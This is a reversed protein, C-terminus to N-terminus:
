NKRAKEKNANIEDKISYITKGNEFIYGDNEHTEVSFNMEGSSSVTLTVTGQLDTRYIESNVAILNNITPDAPLGYQKEPSSHTNGAGCSIVAYEPKVLKLFDLASSTISGHHGVKLVDCDVYESNYNSYYEYFKYEAGTNEKKDDTNEADGTLLIKRGAYEIMIIPSFNNATKFSSFGSLDTAYPMVFDVTYTYTEEGYKVDCSFDSNDSFFEWSDKNYEYVSEIYNYYTKSTQNIDTGCNFSSDFKSSSSNESLVYPRFSRKVEYNKYVYDLKGIHDQDPHTAVLYDITIKEGNQTLYKDVISSDCKNFDILMNKGDPFNVLIGDGQGVDIFTVKLDKLEDVSVSDYDKVSSPNSRFFQKKLGAAVVLVAIIVIFVTYITNKVNVAKKKRKKTM